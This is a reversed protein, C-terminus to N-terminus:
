DKFQIHKLGLKLYIYGTIITIIASIYLLITGILHTHPIFSAEDGLILLFISIMQTATKVKSLNSVPISVHLEALFERLGSVLIERGVIALCPLIAAAGSHVLMIIVMVVLLKDAIPDLFRGFSSQAGYARALYGDLFDTISAVIFLFAAIQYSLIGFDLYFIAIIIPIIAIRSITLINPLHKM